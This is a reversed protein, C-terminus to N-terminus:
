EEIPLVLDWGSIRAFKFSNQDDAVCQTQLHSCLMRAFICRRYNRRLKCDHLQRYAFVDFELNRVKRNTNSRFITVGLHASFGVEWVEDACCCWKM